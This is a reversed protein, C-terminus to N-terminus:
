HAYVPQSAVNYLIVDSVRLVWLQCSPDPKPSTASFPTRVLHPAALKCAPLFLRFLHCAFPKTQQVFACAHMGLCATILPCDNNDEAAKATASLLSPMLVCRRLTPKIKAVVDTTLQNCFSHWLSSRASAELIRIAHGTPGVEQLRQHRCCKEAAGDFGTYSWLKCDQDLNASFNYAPFAATLVQPTCKAIGFSCNSSFFASEIGKIEAISIQRRSHQTCITPPSGSSV